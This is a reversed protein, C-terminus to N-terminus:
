PADGLPATWAGTGTVLVVWIAEDTWLAHLGQDLEYEWQWCIKHRKARSSSVFVLANTSQELM